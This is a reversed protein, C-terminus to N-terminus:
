PRGGYGAQELLHMVTRGDMVVFWDRPDTQGRRKAWVFGVDARAHVTEVIAENLWPGFTLTRCDKVEICVNPVGAIDGKDLAGSLARREAGHWGHRRLCEVVASEAATGKAKSPNSM